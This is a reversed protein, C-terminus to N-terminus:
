VRLSRPVAAAVIWTTSHIEGAALPGAGTEHARSPHAQWSRAAEDGCSSPVRANALQGILSKHAVSEALALDANVM